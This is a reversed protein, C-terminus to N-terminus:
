ISQLGLRVTQTALWFNDVIGLTATLLKAGAPSIDAESLEPTDELFTQLAATDALAATVLHWLSAFDERSTALAPVRLAVSVTGLWLPGVVNEIEAAEVVIVPGDQRLEAATSATHMPVASLQDVTGLYAVLASEVALSNM